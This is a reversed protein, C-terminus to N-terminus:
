LKQYDLNIKPIKYVITYIYFSNFNKSIKRKFTKKVNLNNSYNFYFHFSLKDNKNIFFNTRKSHM